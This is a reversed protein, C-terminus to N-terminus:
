EGAIALVSRSCPKSTMAAMSRLQSVSSSSTKSSMAMLLLPCEDGVVHGVEGHDNPVPGDLAAPVGPQGEGGVDAHRPAPLGNAAVNLNQCFQQPHVWPVVGEGVTDVPELRPGVRPNDLHIVSRAGTGQCRFRSRRLEDIRHPHTVFKTVFLGARSRM